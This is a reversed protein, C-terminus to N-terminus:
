TNAFSTNRAYIEGNPVYYYDYGRAISVVSKGSIRIINTSSTNARLSVSINTLLNNDSMTGKLYGEKITWNGIKLVGGKTFTFGTTANGM